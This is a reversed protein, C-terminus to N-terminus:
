NTACAAGGTALRAASIRSVQSASSGTGAAPPLAGGSLQRYLCYAGKVFRAGLPQSTTTHRLYCCCCLSSLIICCLQRKSKSKGGGLDNVNTPSGIASSTARTQASTRHVELARWCWIVDWSPGGHLGARRACQQKIRSAQRASAVVLPTCQAAFGASSLGAPEPATKNPAVTSHRSADTSFVCVCACRSADQNMRGCTAGQSPARNNHNRAGLEAEPGFSIAVTRGAGGLRNGLSSSAARGPSGDSHSTTAQRGPACVVAVVVPAM